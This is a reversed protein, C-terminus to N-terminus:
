YPLPPFTPVTRKTLSRNYNETYAEISDELEKICYDVRRAANVLRKSLLKRAHGKPLRDLAQRHRLVRETASAIRRRHVKKIYAIHMEFDSLPLRQMHPVEEKCKKRKIPHTRRGNIANEACMKLIRNMRALRRERVSIKPEGAM